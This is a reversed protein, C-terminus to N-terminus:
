RTAQRVQALIELIEAGFQARRWPTTAMVEALAQPDRPDHAALDELVERPLVVDSPVGMARGKAQRWRRLAELRALYAENPRPGQTVPRPPAKLGREVAQLLARGHRRVLGPSMGPLRRLAELHRPLAQAIALLVKNSLVKFRPRNRRRAIQDRYAVLEALVARQQPTLLQAGKIEWAARPRARPKLVALRAFDEAALPWRGTQELEARLRHRLPILYHTDLRAYDLLAQPLPRQGWDARQFRKDLRVGFFAELLAGLGVRPYGLIRAALMTDFLNVFTFGFDRRLTLVDYDAGHFVKEVQPAAFVPELPTLDPVALPDVLYDAEPTSFQILCVQEQFAHLSNSETDVAVVPEALLRQALDALGQPDAIWVPPPLSPASKMPAIIGGPYRGDWAAPRQAGPCARQRQDKELLANVFNKYKGPISDM